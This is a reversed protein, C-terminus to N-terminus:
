VKEQPPTWGLRILGERIAKEKVDLMEHIVNDLIDEWGEEIMLCQHEPFAQVVVKWRM